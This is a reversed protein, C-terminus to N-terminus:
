LSSIVLTWRLQTHMCVGTSVYISKNFRTILKGLTHALISSMHVFPGEKGIPLSSGVATALGFQSPSSPPSPSPLSQLSATKYCLHKM